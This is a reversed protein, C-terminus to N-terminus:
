NEAHPEHGDHAHHDTRQCASGPDPKISAIAGILDAPTKEPSIGNQLNKIRSSIEPHEPHLLLVQRYCDLAEPIEGDIEHTLGGYLLLLERGLLSEKSARDISSTEWLSLGAKFDSKAENFRGMKVLIRGKELYVEYSLPHLRRARNLVDLALDLRSLDYEMTFSALLFANLNQPNMDLSFKLWPMLEKAHHGELHVHGRPSINGYLKKFFHNELAEKKALGVGRHFYVDHALLFRNSLILRCEGLLRATMSLSPNEIDIRAYTVSVKCSLIFVTISTAILCPFGYKIRNRM